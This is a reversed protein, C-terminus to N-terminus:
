FTTPLKYSQEEIVRWGSLKKDILAKLYDRQRKNAAPVSAVVTSQGNPELEVKELDPLSKLQRSLDDLHDAANSKPHFDKLLLFKVMPDTASM